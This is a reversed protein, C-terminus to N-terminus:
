PTDVGWQRFRNDRLERARLTAIRDVRSTTHTRDFWTHFLPESSRSQVLPPPAPAIAQPGPPSEKSSPFALVLLIAAAAALSTAVGFVVYVVNKPRPKTARGLAGDLARANADEFEASSSTGPRHAAALARALALDPHDANGELARRFRESEALEDASAARLPDDLAAEILAENLDETLPAPRYANVLMEVLEAEEGPTLAPEAGEPKPDTPETM